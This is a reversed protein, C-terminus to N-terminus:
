FYFSKVRVNGELEGDRQKGQHCSLESFDATNVIKMRDGMGGKRKGESEPPFKMSLFQFFFFPVTFM